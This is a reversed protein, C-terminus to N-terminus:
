RARRPLRCPALSGVTGVRGRAPSSSSELVAGLTDQAVDTHRLCRRGWQWATTSTVDKRRSEEGKQTQSRGTLAHTHTRACVYINTSFRLVGSCCPSCRLRSGHDRQRAGASAGPDRAHTGKQQAMRFSVLQWGCVEPLRERCKGSRLSVDDVHRVFARSWSVTVAGGSRSLSLCTYDRNM